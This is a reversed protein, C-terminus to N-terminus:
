AGASVLQRSEIRASLRAHLAVAFHVQTTTLDPSSLWEELRKVEQSNNAYRLVDGCELSGLMFFRIHEMTPQVGFRWASMVARDVCRRLCTWGPKGYVSQAMALVNGISLPHCIEPEIRPTSLPSGDSTLATLQNTTPESGGNVALAVAYPHGSDAPTGALVLYRQDLTVIHVGVEALKHLINKLDLTAKSM